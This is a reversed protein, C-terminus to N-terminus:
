RAAVAAPTARTAWGVPLTAPDPEWYLQRDDPLEFCTIKLPFAPRSNTHVSTELCCIAPSLGMYLAPVGIDNWRGGDTAAGQDSLDFSKKVKVLRWARVLRRWGM